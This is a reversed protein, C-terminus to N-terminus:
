KIKPTKNIKVLFQHILECLRVRPLKQVILQATPRQRTTRFIRERRQLQEFAHIFVVKQAERTDADRSIGIIRQMIYYLNHLLEIM